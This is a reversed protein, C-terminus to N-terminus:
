IQGRDMSKTGTFVPKTLWPFLKLDDITTIIGELTGFQSGLGLLLLMVFFLVAWLQPLPFEVIAQAFAIFAM